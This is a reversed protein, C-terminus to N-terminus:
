ERANAGGDNPGIETWPREDGAFRFDVRRARGDTLEVQRRRRGYREHWVELTYRGDPLGFIEFDGKASSTAFFPHRKVHLHGVMWDHVHCGLTTLGVKGLTKRIPAEGVISPLNFLSRRGIRAHVNHMTDDGNHVELRQGIMAGQVRPRYVCGAQNLQVPRQPTPYHGIAGKVVHVFANQLTGDANKEVLGDSGPQQACYTDVRSFASSLSQISRAPPTAGTLYVFGRVVGRGLKGPKAELIPRVAAADPPRGTSRMSTLPRPEVAEATPRDKTCNLAWLCALAARIRAHRLGNDLLCKPM